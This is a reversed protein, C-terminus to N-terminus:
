NVTEPKVFKSRFKMGSDSKWWYKLGDTLALCFLSSTMTLVAVLLFEQWMELPMNRAILLKMWLLHNLYVALSLKGLFVCWKGHFIYGSLSKGSFSIGVAAAIVLIMVFDAQGSPIFWAGVVVFAYCGLEVVTLLAAFLKTVNAKRAKECIGYVMVGVCMEAIARVIGWIDIVKTTGFNAYLLALSGFGLIPALVNIFLNRNAYLIPYILLLAIMMSSLYWSGGVIVESNNGMPSLGINQLFLLEYVSGAFRNALEKFFNTNSGLLSMFILSSVFAFLYTPYVVTLKKLIQTATAKGVSDNHEKPPKALLYGTVIFFFEVGITASKMWNIDGHSFSLCISFHGIMIVIAFVFRFFDVTGNRQVSNEM